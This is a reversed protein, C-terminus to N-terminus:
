SNPLHFLRIANQTTAQAVMEASIEKIQAIKNVILSLYSPENRRGRYLQPALFPSDTEVLLKDLPLERAVKAQAHATPYTISGPLSVLFGLEFYRQALELDGSFCHIIGRESVSSSVSKAWRTLINLVEKYAQRCHIIVPLGLEVALGLQEQFVELQRQRPSSKRYFDLGTEGIAVVKSDEALKALKNIDGDIMGFAENPHFGVAAFIETYDQTLKLSAQSSELNLGVNIISCVGQGRARALVQERDKEFAPLDIHAHSDIIM